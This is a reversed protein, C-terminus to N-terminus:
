IVAASFIAAPAKTIIFNRPLRGGGEALAKLDLYSSDSSLAALIEFLFSGFVTFAIRPDEVQKYKIRLELISTVNKEYMM